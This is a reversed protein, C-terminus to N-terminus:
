QGFNRTELALNSKEIENGLALMVGKSSARKGNPSSGDHEYQNRKRCLPL